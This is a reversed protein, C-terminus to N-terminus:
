ADPALLLWLGFDELMKLAGQEPRSKPFAFPFVVM